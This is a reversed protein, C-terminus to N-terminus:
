VEHAVVSGHVPTSQSVTHSKIACSPSVHGVPGVPGCPFAHDTHGVPGVPDVPPTPAVHGVPGVPAKALGISSFVDIPRSGANDASPFYVPMVM